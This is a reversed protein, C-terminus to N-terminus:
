HASGTMEKLMTNIKDSRVEASQQKKLEGEDTKIQKQLKELRRLMQQHEIQRKQVDLDVKQGVLGRLEETRKQRQSEDAASKIDGLTKKIQEDIELEKKLTEALQPNDRSAKEVNKYKDFSIKLQEKYTNPDREKLGSLQKAEDPYNEKMWNLHQEYAKDVPATKSPGVGLKITKGVNPSLNNKDRYPGAPPIDRAYAARMAERLEIRFRAPNETRLKELRAATNPDTKRLHSLMQETRVASVSAKNPETKAPGTMGADKAAAARLDATLFTLVLVSFVVMSFVLCDKKM